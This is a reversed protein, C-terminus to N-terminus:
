RVLPFFSLGTGFFFFSVLPAVKEPLTPGRSPQKLPVYIVFTKRM